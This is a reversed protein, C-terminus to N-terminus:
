VGDNTVDSALRVGENAMVDVEASDSTVGATFGVGDKPQEAHHM